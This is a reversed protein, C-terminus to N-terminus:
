GVPEGTDLWRWAAGDSYACRGYEILWWIERERPAASPLM